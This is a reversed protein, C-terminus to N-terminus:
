QYPQETQSMTETPVILALESNTTSREKTPYRTRSRIPAEQKKAIAVMTQTTSPVIEVKKSKKVKGNKTWKIMPENILETIFKALM